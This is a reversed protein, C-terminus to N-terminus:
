WYQATRSDYISLNTGDSVHAYQLARLGMIASLVVRIEILGM